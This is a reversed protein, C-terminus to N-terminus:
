DDSKNVTQLAEVFAEIADAQSIKVMSIAIEKFADPGIDVCTTASRHLGGSHIAIRIARIQSDNITANRVSKPRPGGSETYHRIKVPMTQIM